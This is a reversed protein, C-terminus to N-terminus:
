RLKCLKYILLQVSKLYKISLLRFPSFILFKLFLKVMSIDTRCETQSSIRRGADGRISTPRSDGSGLSCEGPASESRQQLVGSRCRSLLLMLFLPSLLACVVASIDVLNYGDILSEALCFTLSSDDSWTGASQNHVKYGIMDKLPNEYLYKRSKFEVPVGLADGIAVGLLVDKVKNMKNRKRKKNTNRKKENKCRVTRIHKTPAPCVELYWSSGLTAVIEEMNLSSCLM